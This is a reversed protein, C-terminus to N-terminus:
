ICFEVSSIRGQLIVAEATLASIELNKGTVVVIGNITNVRFTEADYDLIGRLGEVMIEGTGTITILSYRGLAQEIDSNM